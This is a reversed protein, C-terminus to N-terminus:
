LLEIEEAVGIDFGFDELGEGGAETGAFFDHIFGVEGWLDEVFGNGEEFDFGTGAGEAGVM